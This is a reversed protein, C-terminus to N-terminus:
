VVRVNLATGNNGANADAGGSISAHITGLGPGTFRVIVAPNTQEGARLKGGTCRLAATEGGSPPRPACSFGAASWGAQVGAQDGLTAVGSTSIDVVIGATESGGANRFAVLYAPSQNAQPEENGRINELAVDSPADAPDECLRNSQPSSEELYPYEATTVTAAVTACLPKGPPIGSVSRTVGQREAGPNGPVSASKVVVDTVGPDWISISFSNEDVSHDTFSVYADTGELRLSDLTPADLTEEAAAPYMGLGVATASAVLACVAMVDIFRGTM